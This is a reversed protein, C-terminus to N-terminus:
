MGALTALEDALRVDRASKRNLLIARQQQELVAAEAQHAEIAAHAFHCAAEQGM